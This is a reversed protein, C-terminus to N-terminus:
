KTIGCRARASMPAQWACHIMRIATPAFSIFAFTGYSKHHRWGLRMSSNFTAGEIGNPTIGAGLVTPLDLADFFDSFTYRPKITIGDSTLGKDSNTSTTEAFLGMSLSCLATLIMLHKM